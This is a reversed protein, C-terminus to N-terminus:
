DSTLDSFTSIEGDITRVQIKRLAWVTIPKEDMNIYHRSWNGDFWAVYYHGTEPDKENVVYISAGKYKVGVLRMPENLDDLLIGHENWRREIIVSPVDDHEFVRPDQSFWGDPGLEVVPFGKGPYSVENGEATFGTVPIEPEIIEEEDDDDPPM